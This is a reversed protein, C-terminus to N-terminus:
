GSNGTSHSAAHGHALDQVDAIRHQALPRALDLRSSSADGGICCSM